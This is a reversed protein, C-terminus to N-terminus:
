GRPLTINTRGINSVTYNIEIQDTENAMFIFLHMENNRFRIQANFTTFDEPSSDELMIARLLDDRYQSQIVYLDVDDLYTFWEPNLAFPDIFQYLRVDTFSGTFESKDVDPHISAQTQTQPIYIDYTQGQDVVFIERDPIDSGSETLKMHEINDQYRGLITYEQNSRWNKFVLRVTYSDHENLANTYDDMSEIKTAGCATLLFTAIVMLLLGSLKKM